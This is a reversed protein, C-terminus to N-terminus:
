AQKVDAFFAIPAPGDLGFDRVGRMLAVSRWTFTGADTAVIFEDFGSALEDEIAQLRNRIKLDFIRRHAEVVKLVSATM